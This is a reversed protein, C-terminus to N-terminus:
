GDGNGCRTGAQQCGMDEVLVEQARQRALSM